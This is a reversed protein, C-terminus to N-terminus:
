MASLPLCASPNSPASIIQAGIAAAWFRLEKRCPVCFVWLQVAAANSAPLSHLLAKSADEIGQHDALEAPDIAEVEHEAAFGAARDPNVDSVAALVGLSKLTRIHNAGWYGCGLVAIRKSM